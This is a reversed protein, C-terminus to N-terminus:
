QANAGYYNDVEACKQIKRKGFLKIKLPKMAFSHIDLIGERIKV